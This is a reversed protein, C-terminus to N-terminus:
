MAGLLDLREQIGLEPRKHPRTGIDVRQAQHQTLEQAALHRVQGSLAQGRGARHVVQEVAPEMEVGRDPPEIGRNRRREFGDHHLAQRRLRTIPVAVRLRKGLVEFPEEIM